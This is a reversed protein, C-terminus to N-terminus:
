LHLRKDEIIDVPTAEASTRGRGRIASRSRTLPTLHTALKLPADSASAPDEAAYPPPPQDDVNLDEEIDPEVPRYWRATSSPGDIWQLTRIGVERLRSTPLRWALAGPSGQSARSLARGNVADPHRTDDDVFPKKGPVAGLLRPDSPLFVPLMYRSDLLEGLVEPASPPEWTYKDQTRDFLM